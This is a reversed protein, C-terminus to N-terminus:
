FISFYYIISLTTLFFLIVMVGEWLYEFKSDQLDLQVFAKRKDSSALCKFPCHRWSLYRLNNPLALNIQDNPVILNDITLLRLNSMNSFGKSFEEFNFDEEKNIVFMAQILLRADSM